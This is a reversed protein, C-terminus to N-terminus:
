RNGGHFGYVASLYASSVLSEALSELVIDGIEAVPVRTCAEEELIASVNSSAVSINPEVFPSADPASSSSHTPEPILNESM